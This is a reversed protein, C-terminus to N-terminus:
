KRKQVLASTRAPEPLMGETAGALTIACEVRLLSFNRFTYEVAILPSFRFDVFCQFLLRSATRSDDLVHVAKPCQTQL